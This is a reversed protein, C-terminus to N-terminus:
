GAFQAGRSVVTAPFALTGNFSQAGPTIGPNSSTAQSGCGCGCDSKGPNTPSSVNTSGGGGRNSLKSFEKRLILYLIVALIVGLFFHEANRNEDAM